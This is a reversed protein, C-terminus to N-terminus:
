NVLPVASVSTFMMFCMFKNISYWFRDHNHYKLVPIPPQVFPAGGGKRRGQEGCPVEGEFLHKRSCLAIFNRKFDDLM